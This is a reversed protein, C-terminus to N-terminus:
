LLFHAVGQRQFTPLVCLDSISIFNQSASTEILTQDKTKYYNIFGMFTNDKTAIFTRGDSQLTQARMEDFYHGCVIPNADNHTASLKAEHDQLIRLAEIVLLKYNESYNELKM